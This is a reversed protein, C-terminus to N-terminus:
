AMVFTNINEYKKLFGDLIMKRSEIEKKATDFIEQLKKFMKEKCKMRAKFDDHLFDDAEYSFASIIEIYDEINKDNVEPEVNLYTELKEGYYKFLKGISNEKSINEGKDNRYHTFDYVRKYKYPSNDKIEQENMEQFIIHNEIITGNPLGNNAKRVKYQILRIFKM